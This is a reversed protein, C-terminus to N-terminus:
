RYDAKGAPSRVVSPVRVVDNPVNCRAIRERRGLRVKVRAAILHVMTLILSAVVPMSGHISWARAHSSSWAWGRGGALSSRQPSPLSATANNL